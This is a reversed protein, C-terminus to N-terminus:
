LPRILRALSKLKWNDTLFLWSESSSSPKSKNEWNIIHANIVIILINLNFCSKSFYCVKGTVLYSLWDATPCHQSGTMYMRKLSWLQTVALNLIQFSRTSNKSLWLCSRQLYCIRESKCKLFPESPLSCSLLYDVEEWKTDQYRVKPSFPDM